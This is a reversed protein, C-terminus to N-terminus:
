EVPTQELEKVLLEIEDVIPRGLASFADRRRALRDAVARYYWVTGERKGNFEKWLSPGRIRYEALLSRLNALKDAATVLLASPSAVELHAIYKEKRQKWPEKVTQQTDSCEAVINAVRDGFRRRIAELQETGGRDEVADHLLAAVAEDETAGYDIALGCVIFLHSVYPTRNVKRRDPWHLRVAYDLAELLRDPAANM